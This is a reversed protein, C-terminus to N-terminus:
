AIVEQILKGGHLLVHVSQRRHGKRVFLWYSVEGGCQKVLEGLSLPELAKEGAEPFTEEACRLNTCMVIKRIQTSRGQLRYLLFSGALLFLGAVVLPRWRPDRWGLVCALGALGLM